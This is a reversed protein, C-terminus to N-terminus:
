DTEILHRRQVRMGPGFFPHSMAAIFLALVLVRIVQMCVYEVAVACRELTSLRM